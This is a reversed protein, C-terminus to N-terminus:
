SRAETETVTPQREPRLLALAEDIGRRNFLASAALYAVAGVVVLVLLLPLPPLPLIERALAVCGYMVVSTLASRGLAGIVEGLHLDLHPCARVLNAVFACPFALVWALALGVLGFQCGIIFALCM